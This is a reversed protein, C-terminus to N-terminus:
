EAEIDKLLDIQVNSNQQTSLVLTNKATLRKENKVTLSLQNFSSNLYDTANIVLEQKNVQTAKDAQISVKASVQSTALLLTTAILTTTIKIM